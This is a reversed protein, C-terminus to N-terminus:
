ADAIAPHPKQGTRPSEDKSNAHIGRSAGMAAREADVATERLEDQATLQGAEADQAAMEAQLEAIKRETVARRSELERRRRGVEERGQQAEIRVQAEMALRASGTLVGSAGLYAEVLLVGENTLLYERIQNSHSMGRSKLLYLGRNREGNSEIDVLLIWTDMLSYLGADSPVTRENSGTLSTFFTTIGRTKLMDLMRLLLAHVESDPGRFSTVPDVVVTTPEFRDLERQMHALHMEFGFSTPRKTEFRLLDAATHQRLHIGASRVNRVVQDASEEFSFFMCREGRACSAAAFSAGLITKGSGAVGSILVSSGRYVGGPGMMVDLGPIGTSVVERTIRHVLGTSSLPVVTIGQQDLLFPYENTGHASGRFKVIRLRRTTIQDQVRNDLLIVCDSVYEELGNRTLTDKGREATIIATLGRDKLWGFLRRLEARLVAEDGLGSFLAELTDLVVRKAGIQDVAYGLRIFLGELDYEGNEEIENRDIRVHDIALKKAAILEPVDFGLSTVNEALDRSTEEFSVFVGPEDFMTAGNVLFTMGLLTKGCGAYGCILTPRGTPLGGLLVEDLGPIGTPTKSLQPALSEVAQPQM